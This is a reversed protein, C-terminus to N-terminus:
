GLSKELIKLSVRRIFRLTEFAFLILLTIFMMFFDKIELLQYIQSIKIKIFQDLHKTEIIWFGCITFCFIILGIM